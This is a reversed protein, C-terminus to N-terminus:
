LNLVGKVKERANKIKISPPEKFLDLFLELGLDRSKKFKEGVCKRAQTKTKLLERCEKVLILVKRGIYIYIVVGM